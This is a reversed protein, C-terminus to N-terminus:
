AHRYSYFGSCCLAGGGIRRGGGYLGGLRTCSSSSGSSFWPQHHKGSKGKQKNLESYPRVNVYLLHFGIVRNIM